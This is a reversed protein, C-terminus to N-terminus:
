HERPKRPGRPPPKTREWRDVEDTTALPFVITDGSRSGTLQLDCGSCTLLYEFGLVVRLQNVDDGKAEATEESLLFMPATGCDPCRRSLPMSEAM